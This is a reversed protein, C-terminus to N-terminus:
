KQERDMEKKVEIAWKVIQELRKENGTLFNFGVVAEFATAIKYDTRTANKAINNSTQNKARAAVEKENETLKDLIFRFIKAQFEAKIIKASEKHLNETKTEFQEMIFHEKIRLSFYADGIFALNLSRKQKAAEETLTTM